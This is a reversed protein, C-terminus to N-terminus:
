ATQRLREATQLEVSVLQSIGREAMTVGYLRDMRAMTVRHHTVILFRTGTRGGIERVLACFREVNADDLPADVEDLVCIPAPNTLFVAFVLALATLAREGGSLLSLIQPKKGPPSAMIELGAGLPDREDQRLELTAMGGGFLRVFLTRFHGNVTEFARSLREAGERNLQQIGQRLRAIAAVLDESEARMSQLEASLAALETDATLNVPGMAARDRRLTELRAELEPTTESGREAPIGAVRPLQEAPCEFGGRARASAEQRAEEAQEHAAAARIAEERTAALTRSAAGAAKDAETARREAEKLGAAATHAAARAQVLLATAQRSEEALVAPRDTLGAAEADLGSLRERLVAIQTAASEARDRWSCLEADVSAIRGTRQAAEGTLRDFERQRDREADRVTSFRRHLLAAAERLATPDPLARQEAAAEAAQAALETLDGDLREVLEAAARRRSAEQGQQQTFQLQARREAESAQQARQEAARAAREALRAAELAAAARREATKAQALEREAAVAETELRALRNRQALRTAAASPAGATMALGDWRWVAGARTVLTQGPHLAAQLRDGMADDAVVGIRRLRRDLRAPATVVDCLPEAGEPLAEPPTGEPPLEVWRVAQGDDLSALADDGLAAGLALELGAGVGIQDLAPRVRKGLGASVLARLADIEAGLRMAQREAQQVPAGQLRHEQEAARAALEARETVARAEAQATVADQLAREAAAIQAESVALLDLAAAKSKAEALQRELRGRREALAAHRKLIAARAAESAAARATAAGHERELEAMAARSRSLEAGAMAQAAAEGARGAYLSKREQALRDTAIRADEV